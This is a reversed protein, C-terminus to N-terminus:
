LRKAVVAIENSQRDYPTGAVDSYLQEIRLGCEGFEMEIEDPTFYQLWNYVTKTRNPEIITYKDLIVKENDYKFINLFGYYKDPAWFGDLLNPEYFVKEEREKFSVISYVDLLISGEPKLLKCFKELLMKRQGPSLACFDCMIMIILDFRDETEFELYNQNVYRINLGEGAAVGQAYEISRKSFDIGTVSAQRRALRTSYLGPGCGFDAIKSGAGINFRSAIWEVSKDIFVANRSSLDVDENLHYSLMQASTHEDTWLDDATYFEFPEPRENIQELEKFIKEAM